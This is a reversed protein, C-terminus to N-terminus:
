HNDMRALVDDYELFADYEYYYNIAIVMMEPTPTKGTNHLIDIIDEFTALELWTQIHQDDVWDPFIDARANTITGGQYELENLWDENFYYIPTTLPNSEWKKVNLYLWQNEIKNMVPLLEVFHDFKAHQLEGKEHLDVIHQQNPNM